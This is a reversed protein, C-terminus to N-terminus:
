WSTSTPVYIGHTLTVQHQTEDDSRLPETAPSGMTFTGAPISVFGDPAGASVVYLGTITTMGGLTLTQTV